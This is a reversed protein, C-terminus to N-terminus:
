DSLILKRNMEELDKKEQRLVAVKDRLEKNQAVATGIAHVVQQELQEV